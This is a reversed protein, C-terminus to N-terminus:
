KYTKTPAYPIGTIVKVNRQKIVYNEETTISFNIDPIKKQCQFKLTIKKQKCLNNYEM